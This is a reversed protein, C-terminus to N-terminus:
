SITILRAGTEVIDGPKVFLKSIKGKATAKIENEMKMAELVLVPQDLDVEDGEQVNVKM